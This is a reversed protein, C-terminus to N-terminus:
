VVMVGAALTQSSQIILQEAQEHYITYTLVHANESFFYISGSIVFIVASNMYDALNFFLVFANVFAYPLLCILCCHSGEPEIDYFTVSIKQEYYRICPEYFIVDILGGNEQLSSVDFFFVDDM